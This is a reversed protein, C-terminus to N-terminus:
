VTELVAAMEKVKQAFAKFEAVNMEFTHTKPEGTPDAVALDVSVFCRSLSQVKSSQVSVGLKWDFKILQGINLMQQAVSGALIPERRENWVHKLVSIAESKWVSAGASRLTAVLQQADVSARVAERFLFVLANVAGQLRKVDISSVRKHLSLTDVMGVRCELFDLVEHVLEALIDQPLQNVTNVAAAFGAPAEALLDTSEAM